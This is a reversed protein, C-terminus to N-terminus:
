KKLKVSIEKSLLIDRIRKSTSLNNLNGAYTLSNFNLIKIDSYGNLLYRIFNSSIFGADGTVFYKM